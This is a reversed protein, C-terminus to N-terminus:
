LLYLDVDVDSGEIYKIFMPYIDIDFDLGGHGCGVAPMAVRKIGLKKCASLLARFSAEVLDVFSDNSWHYKTPFNIVTQEKDRKWVHVTGRHLAGTKCAFRYADLLGPFKKKFQAAVGNGLTGVLNVPNVLAEADSSFLNGHKIIIDGMYSYSWNGFFLLEEFLPALANSFKLPFHGVVNVLLM